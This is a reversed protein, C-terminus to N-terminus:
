ECIRSGLRRRIEVATAHAARIIMGIKRIATPDVSMGTPLVLVREAVLETVPLPASFQSFLSLYPESRHCGPYFYRRALVNEAHLVAVLEDRPLGFKEEAVETVVYQNTNRESEDFPLLTLGPIGRLETAYTEYNRRNVAVFADMCELSTLGMAASVETMKGNTGAHAVVDYGAFGFNRMLRVTKALAADDTVVAGGEFSNVLKTAHFSFVECRGFSGIMRGRHSVGFAHAADFMLTLGRRRAIETLREVPCPRGWLHVGLIATTRPSILQEVHDPALNHTTPDIDCFVPTLGNWYLAHATAVFTFSPVIVEATLGAARIAIGLAVTANCTAVCYAVGVYEAIRQEFERVLPGDNTLWNRHLVQEIRMLLATKDGLNPRGVHLPEDFTPRGGTVIALPVCSETM